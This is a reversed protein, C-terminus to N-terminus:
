YAKGGPLLRNEPKHDPRHRNFALKEHIAGILDLRMVGALFAIHRVTNALQVEFGRRYPLLFDPGNKRHGEMAASVTCVCRLLSYEIIWTNDARRLISLFTRFETDVEPPLAELEHLAGALNLNYFGSIDFIRILADCLEVEFMSRAPLKDDRVSTYWGGAAESLESVTLMLMEGVNRELREGTRIDTWWGNATADGHCLAILAPIQTLIDPAPQLAAIDGPQAYM